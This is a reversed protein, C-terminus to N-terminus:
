HILFPKHKKICFDKDKNSASTGPGAAATWCSGAPGRGCRGGGWRRWAGGWPVPPPPHFPRDCSIFSYNESYKQYAQRYIKNLVTLVCFVYILFTINECKKRYVRPNSTKKTIIFYIIKCSCIMNSFLMCQVIRINVSTLQANQPRNDSVFFQTDNVLVLLSFLNSSAWV